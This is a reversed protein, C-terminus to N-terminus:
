RTEKELVARVRRVLYQWDLRYHYWDDWERWTSPGYLAFVVREAM